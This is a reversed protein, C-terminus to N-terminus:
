FNYIVEIWDDDVRFVNPMDEIVDAPMTFFYYTYGPEIQDTYGQWYGGILYTDTEDTRVRVGGPTIQRYYHIKVTVSTAQLAPSGSSYIDDSTKVRACMQTGAPVNSGLAVPISYNGFADRCFLSVYSDTTPLPALTIDTTGQLGRATATITAAPTYLVSIGMASKGMTIRFVKFGPEVPTIVESSLPSYQNSPSPPVYPVTYVTYPGNIATQLLTPVGGWTWNTWNTGDTLMNPTLEWYRVTIDYGLRLPAKVYMDFDNYSILADTSLVGWTGLDASPINFWLNEPLTTDRANPDPNMIEDVYNVFTKVTPVGAPVAYTPFNSTNGGPYTPYTIALNDVTFVPHAALLGFEPLELNYIQLDNEWRLTLTDRGNGVNTSWLSPLSGFCVFYNYGDGNTYTIMTFMIVNFDNFNTVETTGNYLKIGFGKLNIVNNFMDNRFLGAVSLKDYDAKSIKYWNFPYLVDRTAPAYDLKQLAPVPPAGFIYNNIVNETTIAKYRVGERTNPLGAHIDKYIFVKAPAEETLFRVSIGVQDNYYWVPAFSGEANIKAKEDALQNKPTTKDTENLINTGVLKYLYNVRYNSNYGNDLVAEFTDIYKLNATMIEYNGDAGTKVENQVYGDLVRYFKGAQLRFNYTLINNYVGGYIFDVANNYSFITGMTVGLGSTTQNTQTETNMTDDDVFIITDNAKYNWANSNTVSGIFDGLKVYIFKATLVSATPDVYDVFIQVGEYKSQNLLWAQDYLVIESNKTPIGKYAKLLNADTQGFIKENTMLVIVTDADCKFQTFAKAVGKENELFMYDYIGNVPNYNIVPYAIGNTFKLTVYNFGPWKIPSTLANFYYTYDEIWKLHYNGLADVTYSYLEGHAGALDSLNTVYSNNIYAPQSKGYWRGEVSAITVVTRINSNDYVLANAYGTSNIGVLADFVIYKGANKYVEYLALVKGDKEIFHVNRGHLADLGRGEKLNKEIRDIVNDKRGGPLRPNGIDYKTGSVNGLNVNYYVQDFTITGASKNVTTVLGSNPTFSEKITFYRTYKNYAYLVFNGKSLASDLPKMADEPKIKAGDADVFVVDTYRRNGDFKVGDITIYNDGDYSLFGFSYYTHFIRDYIGDGNDDYLVNDSYANNNYLANSTYGPAPSKVKQMMVTNTKSIVQARAWISDDPNIYTGDSIKYLYKDKWSGGAMIVKNPQYYLLINGDYDLINLNIDMVYSDNITFSDNGNVNYVIAELNDSSKTGQKNYLKTYATVAQYDKSEVKVTVGSDKIGDFDKQDMPEGKIPECFLLPVTAFNDRTIVRYSQGFALNEDHNADFGFASKPLYYTPNPIVNGDSGLINVAVYNEGALTKGITEGTAFMNARSTGTLVVTEFTLRFKSAAFTTGDAKLAFLANYLIVAAEERTAPEENKYNARLGVDLGLEIAKNIYSWPYQANMAASGYGLMRVVMTFVDQFTIKNAPEFTTPSTGIIVANDNCYSISGLFHGSGVDTFATYNVATEGWNVYADDTKGTMIKAIWLAMHWREVEEDPRFESADYGQIIGLLNMLNIQKESSVVDDFASVASTMAFCGVVMLMTLTMALFRKLNRM